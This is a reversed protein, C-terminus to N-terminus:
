IYRKKGAMLVFGVAVTALLIVYPAIDLTIGTNPTELNLTNTFTITTDANVTITASNTSGSTGGEVAWAPTYSGNNETITITDGVNVTIEQDEGHHLDFTSVIEATNSNGTINFVFEDTYECMNGEVLKKITLKATPYTEFKWVGVFLVKETGMTITDGANKDEGEGNVKWGTFKWTGKNAADQIETRNYEKVMILNGEYYQTDDTPAEPITNPPTIGDPAEYRLTYVVGAPNALTVVTSGTSTVTSRTTIESNLDDRDRVPLVYQYQVNATVDLYIKGTQWDTETAEYEVTTTYTGDGNNKLTVDDYTVGNVTLSSVTLSEVTDGTNAKRPTITVTFTVKDGPKVNANPDAEASVALGPQTGTFYQNLTVNGAASTKYGNMALYGNSKATSVLSELSPYNQINSKKWNDVSYLDYSTSNNEQNVISFTSLLYNDEPKAFFVYYSPDDNKNYSITFTEGDRYTGGNVWQGGTYYYYTVVSHSIITNINASKSTSAAVVTVQITDTVTTTEFWGSAVEYTVYLTYTGAPVNKGVHITYGSYNTFWGYNESNATVTIGSQVCSYSTYGRMNDISVSQASNQNISYSGSGMTSTSYYGLANLSVELAAIQEATFNEMELEEAPTLNYLIVNVEDVTTCALLREYLSLTTEEPEEPVEEESEEAKQEDDTKQDDEPLQEDDTNPTEESRNDETDGEAPILPETLTDSLQVIEEGDISTNGEEDTLAAEGSISTNDEALVAFGPVCVDAVLVLALLLVAMRLFPSTIKKKM